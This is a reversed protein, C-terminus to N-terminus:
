IKMISKKNRRLTCHTAPDMKAANRRLLKAGFFCRLPPSGNAVSHGIQGIEPIWGWVELASLSTKVM